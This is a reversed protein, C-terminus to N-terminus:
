SRSHCHFDVFDGTSGNQKILIAYIPRRTAFVGVAVLLLFKAESIEQKRNRVTGNLVPYWDRCLGKQADGASNAICLHDNLKFGTHEVNPTQISCFFYRTLVIIIERFFYNNDILAIAM